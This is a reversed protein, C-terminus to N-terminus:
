NLELKLDNPLKNSYPLLNEISQSLSKFLYNLYKEVNLGNYKATQVISFLQM